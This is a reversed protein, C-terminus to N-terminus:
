RATEELELTAETTTGGATTEAPRNRYEEYIEDVGARWSLLDDRRSELKESEQEDAINEKELPDESLDYYEERENGYHYIYKEGDEISMLCTFPQYCSMRHTRNEREPGFLSIGPYEGGKVRYGLADVLTPLVDTHNSPSEYRVPQPNLPDHVFFPVHTGENYPVNDHQSRGHEGFAEGHDGVVVFVTERYLGMEKYQQFLNSLFQDQYHLTNLYQNLKEDETFEHKEFDSPVNYDHHATITLYSALFPSDGNAELWQRSPELMIDDEYGFYNVEEYGEKPLAELPYFDDYGFNGVLERRREFNETASQFFATEYGEEKLLEPLCESPLSDENAESNDSDMPPALGCHSATLSKSTHPMVTNFQEAMLSNESLQQLFPTVQEEPPLGRQREDLPTTVNSRTSELYVMVVNRKPLGGTEMQTQVPPKESALVASTDPKVDAFRVKEVETVFMNVLADRTFSDSAGTIGPLTSLGALAFAAAFVTARTFNSRRATWTPVYWDREALRTVLAPGAIVYFLVASILWVMWAESESAIVGQIEGFSSLALTIVNIGLPSGTTEYYLHASTTLLVVVLTSVHFAALVLWRALGKRFVTFLGVWLAVYGLNFLLDSRVQDLFALAGPADEQSLVRIVKLTFNYLTLPLLLALLYFWDGRGLLRKVRSAGRSLGGQNHTHNHTEGSMLEPSQLLTELV